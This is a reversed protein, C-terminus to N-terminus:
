AGTQWIMFHESKLLTGLVPAMQWNNSVLLAALPVIVNTEINADIDYYIFVPLAAPM